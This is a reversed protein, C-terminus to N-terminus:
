QHEIKVVLTCLPAQHNKNKKHPPESNQSIQKQSFNPIPFKIKKGTYNIKGAIIQWKKSIFFIFFLV